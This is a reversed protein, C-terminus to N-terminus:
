GHVKHGRYRFTVPCVSPCVSLRVSSKRYCYRAICLACLANCYFRNLSTSCQVDCTAAWEKSTIKFYPYFITLATIRSSFFINSSIKLSQQCSTGSCIRFNQYFIEISQESNCKTLHSMKSGSITILSCRQFRNRM